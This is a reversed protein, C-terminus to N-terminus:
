KLNLVYHPNTKNQKTQSLTEKYLMGPQGFSAKYALSAELECLGVGAKQTSPNFAHAVLGLEQLSSDSPLQTTSPGTLLMQQESLVWTQDEPGMHCNM